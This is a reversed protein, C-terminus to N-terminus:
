QRRRRGVDVVDVDPFHDDLGALESIAQVLRASHAFSGTRFHTCVGDGLVRWEAVSPDAHFERATMPETM